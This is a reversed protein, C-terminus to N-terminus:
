PCVKRIIALSGVLRDLHWERSALAEGIVINVGPYCSILDHFAILGGLKVSPAVLRFDNRVGVESHDGDIFVFDLPGGIEAMDLEYSFKRVPTIMHAYPLTNSQFELFTDKEGDPMTQNMWTDVCVLHGGGQELGACVFLASSGIHSGIELARAAPLLAKATQFLALREAATTHSFVSNHRSLGHRRLRLSTLANDLLPISIM